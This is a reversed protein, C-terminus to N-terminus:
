SDLDLRYIQTSGLNRVTLPEWDNTWGVWPEVNGANRFDIRVIEELRGTAVEVRYAYQDVGELWRAYVYRGDSSWRM